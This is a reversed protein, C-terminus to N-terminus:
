KFQVPPQNFYKLDIYIGSALILLKENPDLQSKLINLQFSDESTLAERFLGKWEKEIDFIRYLPKFRAEIAGIPKGDTTHPLDTVRPKM